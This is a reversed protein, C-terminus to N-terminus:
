YRLNRKNVFGNLYFPSIGLTLVYIRPDENIKGLTAEEFASRRVFDQKQLEQVVAIKNPHFYLNEHLIRRITWVRLSEPLGEPCALSLQDGRAGRM